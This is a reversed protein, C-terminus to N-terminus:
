RVVFSQLLDNSWASRLLIGFCTILVRNIKTNWEFERNKQWLIQFWFRNQHKKNSLSTLFIWCCWCCVFTIFWHSVFFVWIVPFPFRMTFSIGFSSTIKPWGAGAAIIIFGIWSMVWGARDATTMLYLDTSSLYSLFFTKIENENSESLAFILFYYNLM